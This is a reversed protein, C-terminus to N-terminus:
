DPGSAVPRRLFPGVLVGGVSELFGCSALIFGAAYVLLGCKWNLVLLAVKIAVDLYTFVGVWRPPGPTYPGIERFPGIKPFTTNRLRAQTVRKDFTAISAILLFAVVLSLVLRSHALAVGLTALGLAFLTALITALLARRQCEAIFQAVEPQVQDNRDSGNPVGDPKM